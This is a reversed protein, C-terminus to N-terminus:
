EVTVMHDGKADLDISSQGLRHLKGILVYPLCVWTEGQSAPPSKSPPNACFFIYEQAIAFDVRIVRKTRRTKTTIVSGVVGCSCVV